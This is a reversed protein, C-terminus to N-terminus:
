DVSCAVVDDSFDGLGVGTEGLDSREVGTELAHFLGELSDLSVQFAFVVPVAEILELFHHPRRVQSQRLTQVPSNKVTLWERGRGGEGWRYPPTLHRISIHRQRNTTIVDEEGRIPKKIKRIM